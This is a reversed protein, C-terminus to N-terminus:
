CVYIICPRSNFHNGHSWSAARIPKWILFQISLLFFASFFIQFEYTQFHFRSVFCDNRCLHLRFSCILKSTVYHVTQIVCSHDFDCIILSWSFIKLSFVFFARPFHYSRSYCYWWRDFRCSISSSIYVCFLTASEAIRWGVSFIFRINLTLAKDRIIRTSNMFLLQRRILVRQLRCLLSAPKSTRLM